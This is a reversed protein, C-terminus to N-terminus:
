TFSVESPYELALSQRSDAVTNRKRLQELCVPDSEFEESAVQFSDPNIGLAM